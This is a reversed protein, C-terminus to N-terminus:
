NWPVIHPMAKERLRTNRSYWHQIIVRRDVERQVVVEGDPCTITSAIPIMSLGLLFMSHLTDPSKQGPIDEQGIGLM